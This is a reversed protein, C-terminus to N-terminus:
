PHSRAARRDVAALGARASKRVAEVPDSAAATFRRRAGQDDDVRLLLWGLMASIEGARPSSPYRGLFSAMAGRAQIPREARALAVAQWYLADEAIAENGGSEAAQGFATAADTFAQARLARWGEAFGREAASQPARAMRPEHPRRGTERAGSLSAVARAPAVVTPPAPVAPEWRQSARLFVSRGQGKTPRVEVVGHDVAVAVLKDDVVTVDFATGHVEVEADGAIVRFREHPGLPSVQVSLSGQTLRVVEDPLSSWTYRASKGAAASDRPRVAGRHAVPRAPAPAGPASALPAPAPGSPARVALLAAVAAVAAGAGIGAVLGRGPWRRPPRREPRVNAASAVLRARARARRADRSPPDPLAEALMTLRKLSSWEAKCTECTRMHLVMAPDPSTTVNRWLRALEPCSQHKV